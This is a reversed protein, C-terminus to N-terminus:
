FRVEFSSYVTTGRINEGLRGSAQLVWNIRPSFVAQTLRVDAGHTTTTTTPSQNRWLQYGLRLRSPGLVFEASPSATFGSSTTADYWTGSVGFAVGGLIPPTMITVGASVAQITDRPGNLSANVDAYLGSPRFLSLGTSVRERRTLPQTWGTDVLIVPRDSVASAYFATTRSMPLSARVLLRSLGWRDNITPPSVAIEQTYGFRGSRLRTTWDVVARQFVTDAGFTRHGALTTELDTRGRSRRTGVFLAVKPVRFDFEENGRAPDFGAAVGGFVGQEDGLRLAAGDWFGSAHDFDSFFRGVTLHSGGTRRDYRAEYLRVRMARDFLTAPGTRYQARLNVNLEGQGQAVRTRYRVAPTAVDHVTRVPSAGLGVTETHAGWM